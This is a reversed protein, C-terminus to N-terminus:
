NNPFVAPAMQGFTTVVHGCPGSHSVYVYDPALAGALADPVPQLARQHMKLGVRWSGSPYVQHVTCNCTYLRSHVHICHCKDFWSSCLLRRLAGPSCLFAKTHNIIHFFCSTGPYATCSRLQVPSCLFLHYTGVCLASYTNFVWLGGRWCLTV